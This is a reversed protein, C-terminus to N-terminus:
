DDAVAFPKSSTMGGTLVTQETDESPKDGPM